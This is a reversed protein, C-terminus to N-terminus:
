AAGERALRKLLDLAEDRNRVQGELQADQVATLLRRFRPGPPLGMAILDDGTVLPPPLNDKPCEARFESLRRNALEYNDMHRHSSACDVRHLELEEDINEHALFRRLTSERMKPLNIYGMHREVMAVVRERAENSFALRRMIRDAIEAGVRDHGSFRIRDPAYTITAPKGVDHLLTAFALTPSPNPRLLALMLRTHTFVDGEPHYEVPQQCGKMAAVEPMIIELLGSGDLLQLFRDPNRRTFGKTLEDRIREASIDRILGALERISEWTAPDIRFGLSSAFRLARLIRLADESFRDRPNGIARIVGARIDEQGQVYDVVDGTEPEMFLGNITFDRRLADHRADSFEVRDPHRRDSYGSETRFTAVEVKDFDDIVLIVGFRAGVQVSHPFLASVQEPRASTAVDWDEPRRGMLLDRVCGGVLLAEFGGARLKRVINVALNARPDDSLFQTVM